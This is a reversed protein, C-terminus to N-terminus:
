LFHKDEKEPFSSSILTSPCTGPSSLIFQMFYNSIRSPTVSNENRKLIKEVILKESQSFPKNWDMQIMERVGAAIELSTNSELTLGVARDPLSDNEYLGEEIDTLFQDFTPRKGRTRLKPIM